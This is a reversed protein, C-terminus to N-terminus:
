GHSLLQARPTSEPESFSAVLGPSPPNFSRIGPVSGELAPVGRPGLLYRATAVCLLRTLSLGPVMLFTFLRAVRGRVELVGEKLYVDLCTEFM